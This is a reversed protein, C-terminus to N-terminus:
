RALFLPWRVSRSSRLSALPGRAGSHGRGRRMARAPALSRVEEGARARLGGDELESEGWVLKVASRAENVRREVCEVVNDGENRGPGATAWGRENVGRAVASSSGTSASSSSWSGLAGDLVPRVGEKRRM